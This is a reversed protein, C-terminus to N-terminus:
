LSGEGVIKISQQQQRSTILVNQVLLGENENVSPDWLNCLWNERTGSHSPQTLEFWRVELDWNIQKYCLPLLLLM